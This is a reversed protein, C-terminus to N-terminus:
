RYFFLKTQANAKKLACLVALVAARWTRHFNNEAFGTEMFVCASCGKRARVCIDLVRRRTMAVIQRGNPVRGATRAAVGAGASWCIVTQFSLTKLKCIFNGHERTTFLLCSRWMTQIYQRDGESDWSAVLKHRAKTGSGKHVHVVVVATLSKTENLGRSGRVFGRM